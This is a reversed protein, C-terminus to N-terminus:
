ASQELIRRQAELHRRLDIVTAGESEVDGVLALKTGYADALRATHDIVLAPVEEGLNATLNLDISATQAYARADDLDAILQDVIAPDLSGNRGAELYALLSANLNVICEPQENAAARQRRKTVVFAVGGIALAGLATAGVTAKSKTVAAMLKPAGDDVVKATAEELMKVIRGTDTNRIVGGALTLTGAALGAMLNDPVVLQPQIVAM